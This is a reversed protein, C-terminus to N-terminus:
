SWSAKRGRPSRRADDIADDFKENTGAAVRHERPRRGGAKGGVTLTWTFTIPDDHIRTTSSASPASCRRGPASRGTGSAASCRGRPTPATSTRRRRGAGLWFHWAGHGAWRYGETLMRYSSGPRRARRRRARSPRRAASIPTTPRTSARQRLLGRRHLAAAEPGLGLPRPRRGDANASTPSPRTARYREASSTTTATSRCRRQDKNAGGGDTM